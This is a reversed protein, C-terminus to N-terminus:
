SQEDLLCTSSFYAKKLMAPIKSWKMSFLISNNKIILFVFKQCNNIADYGFIPQNFIIKERREKLDHKFFLIKGAFWWKSYIFSSSFFLYAVCEPEQVKYFLKEM